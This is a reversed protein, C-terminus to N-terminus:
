SGPRPAPPQPRDQPSEADPTVSLFFDDGTEIVLVNRGARLRVPVREKGAHWGTWGACQYVPRGNLWVSQLHGGTHLFARKSRDASLYAVGHYLLAKGLRNALSLAFGRQREHELWWTPAPGKEPLTHTTWGSGHPDLSAVLAEDLHQGAPAIRVRWEQLIGPLPRLALEKPVPVDAHGLADLVARAILRQGEYNPHVKDAEVVALGAARAQRLLRNVDAVRCRYEAALRHLVANYETLRPELRTYEGGLLGTTLLLLPVGKRRLRAAIARVDAEYDAAAVKQIADHVGASVAVLTPRHVFVDRELRERIGHMTDTSVGANICGPVPRGARALAQRLLLLYTNGDTSSDGAFVIRGPAPAAQAAQPVPVGPPAEIQTRHALLGGGIGLAALVLLAVTLKKLATTQLAREALVLASASAEATQGAAFLLAAKLTSDALAPPVAARVGPALLLAFAGASLAVGRRQLRVRLLDRARALRGKVSGLPWGLTRAAEDHTKGELYCLVLPMRYRDPLRNVEQHLLPHWDAWDDPSSSTRSMLAAQRELARRRATRTRAERAVNLAVRHLWAALAEGKRISGAKRALVLFTAQFADEADHGDRLVQRCVGLVLPGYRQMLGAFAGEDRDAVFQHLLQGDPDDTRCRVFRRVYRLVGALPPNTM